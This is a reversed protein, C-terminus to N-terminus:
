RGAPLVPDIDVNFKLWDIKGYNKGEVEHNAPSVRSDLITLKARGLRSTALKATAEDVEKKSRNYPWLVIELMHSEVRYDECTLVFSFERPNMAVADRASMGYETDLNLSNYNRYPPNVVAAWDGDPACPMKPDVGIKWGTDSPKLVFVLDAGIEKRFEQGESIVGSFHRILNQAFGCSALVLLVFASGAM